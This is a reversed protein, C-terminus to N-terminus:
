PYPYNIKTVDNCRRGNCGAQELLETDRQEVIDMLQSNGELYQLSVSEGGTACVQAADNLRVLMQINPDKSFLPIGNISSKGIAISGGPSDVCQGPSLTQSDFTTSGAGFDFWNQDRAEWGLAGGVLTGLLLAALIPGRRTEHVVVTRPAPQNPLPPQSTTTGPQQPRPTLVFPWRRTPLMNRGRLFREVFAQLQQEDQSSFSETLNAAKGEVTQGTRSLTFDKTPTNPPTAGGGGAAAEYQPAIHQLIHEPHRM